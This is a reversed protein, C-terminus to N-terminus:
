WELTLQEKTPYNIGGRRLGRERERLIYDQYLKKTKDPIKDEFGYKKMEEIAWVTAAYECECRRMKSTRTEQHGIEHFLDFTAAASNKFDWKYIKRAMGCSHMRRWSHPCKTGDCLVIQYKTIVEKQIEIFNM